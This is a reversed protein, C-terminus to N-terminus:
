GKKSNELSNDNINHLINLCLPCTQGIIREPDVPPVIGKEKLLLCLDRLQYHWILENPFEKEVRRRGNHAFEKALEPHDLIKEIAEVLALSDRPPVLLGTVGDLVSSGDVGVVKTSVVPLEMASAEINVNCFGERYTPLVFVNMAAYYDEVNFVFGVVNIGRHLFSKTVAIAACM